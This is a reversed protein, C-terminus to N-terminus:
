YSSSSFSFSFDPRLLSALNQESILPLGELPDLGTTCKRGRTLNANCSDSLIFTAKPVFPHLRIARPGAILSAPWFVAQPFHPYARGEPRISDRSIGM